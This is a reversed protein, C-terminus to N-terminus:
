LGDGAVGCRGASQGRKQDFALVRLSNEADKRGIVHNRVILPSMTTWYGKQSDAVVVNWRVTGDSANLCILHADPTMFYLWDKYM